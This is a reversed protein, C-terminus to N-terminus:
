CTIGNLSFVVLLLFVIPLIIFLSSTAILWKKHKANNKIAFYIIFVNGILNVLYWYSILSDSETFGFFLIAFLIIILYFVISKAIM